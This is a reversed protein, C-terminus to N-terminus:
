EHLLPPSETRRSWREAIRKSASETMGFLFFEPDLVVLMEFSDTSRAYDAKPANVAECLLPSRGLLALPQTRDCEVVRYPVWVLGGIAKRRHNVNRQIIILTM